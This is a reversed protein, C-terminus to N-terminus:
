NIQKGVRWECGNSTFEFCIKMDKNLRSVIQNVIFLGFEPHCNNEELIATAKTDKVMLSYGLASIRKKLLNTAQTETSSSLIASQLQHSPHVVDLIRALLHIVSLKQMQDTNICLNMLQDQAQGAIDRLLQKSMIRAYWIGISGFLSYWGNNFSTQVKSESQTAASDPRNDKTEFELRSPFIKIPFATKPTDFFIQILCSKM